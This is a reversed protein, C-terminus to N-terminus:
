YVDPSTHNRCHPVEVARGSDRPDRLTDAAPCAQPIALGQQVITLAFDFLGEFCTRIKGRTVLWCRIM